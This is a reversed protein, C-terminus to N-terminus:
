ARFPSRIVVLRSYTSEYSPQMRLLVLQLAVRDVDEVSSFSDDRSSSSWDERLLSDAAIRDSRRDDVAGSSGAALVDGVLGTVVLFDRCKERQMRKLWIRCNATGGFEQIKM